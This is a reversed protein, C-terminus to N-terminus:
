AEPQKMAVAYLSEWAYKQDDLVLAPCPGAQRCEVRVVDGFGARRLMAHLTMWDYLFQHEYRQRFYSNIADGPTAGLDARQAILEGPADVYKTLLRGADPVVVRFCGGPRLIRLVERSISEGDEKSFHELVHECFVGDFSRDPFPLRRVIDLLFHVHRDAFGDVNIWHNDDLGRPGSGLNLYLPQPRAALFRGIRVHQFTLASRFRVALFHLDWRAIALFRHSFFFLLLSRM